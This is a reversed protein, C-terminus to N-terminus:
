GMLFDWLSTFNPITREVVHGSTVQVWSGNQKKYGVWDSVYKHYLFNRVGTSINERYVKYHDGSYTAKRTEDYNYLTGSIPGIYVTVIRFKNGRDGDDNNNSAAFAASTRITTVIMTIILIFFVVRMFSNRKLEMKM